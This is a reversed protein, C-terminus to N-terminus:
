GVRVHMNVWGKAKGREEERGWGEGLLLVPPHLIRKKSFSTWPSYFNGGEQCPTDGEAKGRRKHEDKAESGSEHCGVKSRSGVQNNGQKDVLRNSAQRSALM